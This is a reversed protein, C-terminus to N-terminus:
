LVPKGWAITLPQHLGDWNVKVFGQLYKILLFGLNLSTLHSTWLCVVPPQALVGGWTAESSQRKLAEESTRKAPMLRSPALGGDWGAGKGRARAAGSVGPQRLRRVEGAPGAARPREAGRLARPRQAPHALQAPARPARPAPRAAGGPLLRPPQPEGHVTGEPHHGVRSPRSSLPRSPGAGGGGRWRRRVRPPSPPSPEGTGIYLVHYLTDKAQVLDVVLHSFRVSDQTVCPEPTVPQVAESMLFLRQADQLSRETLNENPGM